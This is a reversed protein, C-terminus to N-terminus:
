ASCRRVPGFPRPCGRRLYLNLALLKRVAEPRQFRGDISVLPLNWSAEIHVVPMRDSLNAQSTLFAALLM